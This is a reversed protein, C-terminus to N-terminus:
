EHGSGRPNALWAGAAILVAWIVFPAIWGAEARAWVLKLPSALLLVAAGCIVWAFARRGSM